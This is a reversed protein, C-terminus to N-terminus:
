AGGGKVAQPTLAAQAIHPTDCGYPCIGKDGYKAIQALVGRLRAVEDRLAQYHEIM